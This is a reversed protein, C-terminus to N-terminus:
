WIVQVGYAAFVPDRTIVPYALGQAQAILMRDFPDKHPGDLRGAAAAHEISIPLSLFRGKHLYHEIRDPVDGAEALKGIRHKTTIEWVSAASVYLESAPDSLVARATPSLLSDNYLWWLLAHTDLIAETM